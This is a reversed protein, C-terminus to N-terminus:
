HHPKEEPKFVLHARVRGDIAADFDFCLRRLAGLAAFNTEATDACLERAGAKTAEAIIAKMVASGIGRGRASRTLWIGAEVVGAQDTLKMRASGLVAGFEVAAWTAERTPGALGERNALHYSRLWAIRQSTWENGVAMAPTVEDATADTTAAHVIQDLM